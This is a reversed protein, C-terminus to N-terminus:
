DCMYNVFCNILYRRWKAEEDNTLEADPSIRGQLINIIEASMFDSFFINCIELEFCM